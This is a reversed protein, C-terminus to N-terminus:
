QWARARDNSEYWNATRVALGRRAKGAAPNVGGCETGGAVLCARGQGPRRWPWMATEPLDHRLRDSGELWPRLAVTGKFGTRTAPPPCFSLQHQYLCRICVPCGFGSRNAKTRVFGSLRVRRRSSPQLCQRGGRSWMGYGGSEDQGELIQRLLRQALLFALLKQRARAQLGPLGNGGNGGCQISFPWHRSSRYIDPNPLARFTRKQNQRSNRSGRHAPHAFGAGRPGIKDM